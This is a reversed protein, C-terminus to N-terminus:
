QRTGGEVANLLNPARRPATEGPAWYFEQGHEAARRQMARVQNDYEPDIMRQVQDALWRDAVLRLYWVNNGPVNEKGLEAAQAALRPHDKIKMKTVLRDVPGPLNGAAQAHALQNGAAGSAIKLLRDTDGILPGAAYEAAGAYRGQATLGIIDGLMALAGGKLLGQGWTFIGEPTRPDMPRPDRGNGIEYLQQALVGMVTVPVALALLYGLKGAVSSQEVMRGGHRLLSSITFTRFMLPGSRLLEGTYTGKRANVSLLSRTEIDPVPVAFDQENHAMELFRAKHEGEGLTAPTLLDLGNPLKETAASRIADWEKPGIRYRELAARWPAELAGFPKDRVMTAYIFTTLGHGQRGADTIASLGAARLVGDSVRRGFEGTLEEALFRSQGSVQSTWVEPVFSLYAAALRHSPDAPNLLKLYDRVIGAVPLGNFARTAMGYGMDSLATIPSSGLKAASALGRYTSFALSVGRSEPQRLAGTYEDWLRGVVKSEKASRDRKRLQGPKFLEPDGAVRDQVYRITAEPNPGLLEMAAIARSMGKVEGVLADFATGTGFQAQSAKWDAYSKYHIFRHQGLRNAFSTRGASGPVRDSAGDSAIIAHVARAAEILEPQTFPQGTRENVMRQLDWRPREAAWWQEFGAEAVKRSDHHTAFGRNELKGINAGAANARLRLWEQTERVAGVAEKAALSGSAEGFAEAGLEDMEAAHRLVGPVIARHRRLIEAMHGFAEGEIAQRRADILGILTRAAKPNIPGVPGEGPIVGGGGSGDGGGGRQGGGWHEGGRTLWDEAFDAAKVQLLSRRRKEIAEFDVADLTRQSAVAEAAAPSMARELEARHGDFLERAREAQDATLKGQELLEPIPFAAAL